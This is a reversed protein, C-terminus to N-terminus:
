SVAEFDGSATVVGPLSLRVVTGRGLSSALGLRVDDSFRFALRMTINALGIGPGGEGPAPALSPAPLDNGAARLRLNELVSHDMGQGSDAVILRLRDGARRASVIVRGGEVKPEIGHRVANEVLPQLSFRPILFGEVEPEVRIEWSLRPGFRIGQFSLYERLSEIEEGLPVSAGGEALSYRLLRGLGQALRETGEAEELLASRAITNLANFLFHPRIQGQLYMFQAERLAKGMSVRSLTEEHLRRELEAKERLDEVMTRINAAMANFGHALV